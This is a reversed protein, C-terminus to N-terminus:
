NTSRTNSNANTLEKLLTNAINLGTSRWALKVYTYPELGDMLSYGLITDQDEDLCAVFVKDNTMIAELRKHQMASWTSRKLTTKNAKDFYRNRLYTAFIFNHDSPLLTRVIIRM